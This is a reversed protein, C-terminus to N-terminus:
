EFTEQSIQKLLIVRMYVIHWKMNSFMPFKYTQQPAGSSWLDSSIETSSIARFPFPLSQNRLCGFFLLKFQKLIHKKWNNLQESSHTICKSHQSCWCIDEPTFNTSNSQETKKTLSKLKTLIPAQTNM